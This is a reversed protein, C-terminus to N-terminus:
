TAAFDQSQTFRALEAVARGRHSIGHKVVAGLSAFTETYGCPVFLPDYGFGEDGTPSTMILGECKGTFYRAATDRGLLCLVCVFRATRKEAPVAALQDLLKRNNKGANAGPGAYRASHVGPGGDLADVVLGSDDSLVWASSEISASLAQAKILANAEFTNGSEEVEPMGGAENASRLDIPIGHTRVLERFEELKHANGSALYVKQLVPKM